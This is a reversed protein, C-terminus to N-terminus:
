EYLVIDKGNSFLMRSPLAAKFDYRVFTLQALFIGLQCFAYFNDVDKAYVDYGGHCRERITEDEDPINRSTFSTVYESFDRFTVNFDGRKKM